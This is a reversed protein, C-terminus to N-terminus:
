NCGTTVIDDTGVIETGDYTLATLTLESDGCIIGIDSVKFRLRLDIDGDGDVDSTKPYRNIGASNAGIGVTAPDVTMPDFEGTALIAVWLNKKRSLNIKNPDRSPRIDIEVLTPGAPQPVFEVFAGRDGIQFKSVSAFNVDTVVIEGFRSGLVLQGSESINIDYFSCQIDRGIWDCPPAITQILTGAADVHHIEGDWDAVYIDGNANVAVARHANWGFIATLDISRIFAYSEPDYVDITRGGPSGGPSLVYLLGDLGVTLDIADTGDAFRFAVGSDMNFAVVGNTTIMDTVFVQNEYVDIGGYSGNNVTKWDTYTQHTWTPNGAVPDRSSLYPSFTGNYLHVIGDGDVVLDRASETAPYSGGPYQAAHAGVVTGDPTTEYIVNETSILLNGPTHPDALAAVPALTAIFLAIAIKKM